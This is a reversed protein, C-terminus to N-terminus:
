CLISKSVTPFNIFARKVLMISIFEEL